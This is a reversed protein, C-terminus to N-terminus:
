GARGAAAGEGEEHYSEETNVGWLAARDPNEQLLLEVATMATLMSHDMNNYKHMGNRGIPYLNAIGDLFARVTAFEGYTGFYAPYTKPMRIVTGDVVADDAAGFGLRQLEAAAFAIMDPDRRSWLEDGENCFYELGLWVTGSAAVMYPSWNNFIQIRGLRVDPEQVYIWNDALPAGSPERVKLDRLLLGVTLFDRYVLGNSVRRVEHPVVAAPLGAVLDRIPMSSFVADAEIRQHGGALRERALVARIRNGDMEFGQVELGHLIVGGARNVAAAVAEWMQGPGFKPYLFREILSTDTQKQRVDGPAARPAGRLAHRIVRSISLGRVRQAGWAASIERCPVGWVKETYSKFFTRYLPRGFRNIFFDELTREPRVPFLSAWAYGCGIRAMQLLGLQRVTRWNLRVPYDFFRRQFLIRSQRARQLMVADARRSDREPTAADEQPLFHLWWDMVRDSKSFFRHGGIDLRNGHHNVTRSLGGVCDDQELIIPRVASQRCLEYAATLGAPGAGIIIVTPTSM